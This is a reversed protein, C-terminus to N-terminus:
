VYGEMLQGKIKRVPNLSDAPNQAIYGIEKGRLKRLQKPTMKLLDRDGLWISGSIQAYNPLLGLIALGLVSKGCGSEGIIATIEGSQFTTSIRRRGGCLREKVRFRISVQELRIDRMM